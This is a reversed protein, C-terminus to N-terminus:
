SAAGTAAQLACGAVTIRHMLRREGQYDNQASHWTARNDWFAISGERWRFRCTFEPRAAHQMLFDILPRSEADTMEEFRHLHGGVYLARRGTEPHTWFHTVSSRPPDFRFTYDSHFHDGRRLGIALRTDFPPM